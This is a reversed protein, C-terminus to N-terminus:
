KKELLVLILLALNLYSKSEQAKLNLVWIIGEHVIFPMEQEDMAIKDLLAMHEDTM